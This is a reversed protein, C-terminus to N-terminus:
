VGAAALRHDARGRGAARRGGLHRPRPAPRSAGRGRRHAPPQRRPARGGAAQPKGQPLGASPAAQNLRLSFIRAGPITAEDYRLQLPQALEFTPPEQLIWEPPDAFSVSPIM